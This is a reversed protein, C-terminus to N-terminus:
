RRPLAPFFDTPPPASRPTEPKGSALEKELAKIKKRQQRRVKFQGPATNLWVVTGGIIFGFAFLGLTVLYLPLQAPENIPSYIVTVLQRNFIAFAVLAAALIFGTIHRVLNVM